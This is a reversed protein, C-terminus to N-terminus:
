EIDYKGRLARMAKSHQKNAHYLLYKVYKPHIEAVSMLSILPTEMAGYWTMKAAPEDLNKCGTRKIAVRRIFRKMFRVLKVKDALDEFTNLLTFQGRKPSNPQPQERGLLLYFSADSVEFPRTLCNEEYHKDTLSVKEGFRVSVKQTLVAENANKCISIGYEGNVAVFGKEACYISFDRECLRFNVTASENPKLYVKTFARLERRARMYNGFCNDIYLQVVEAAFVGGRNTVTVQVNFGNRLKEVCLNSYDFQAYSLGYGFPFLVQQGYTNYYRYGVFISERHEDYYRNNNFYKFCPTDSLQLPYTEALRGSPSVKGFILDCAAEMVAQGGLYMHLLCQVKNLWPMEFPSGGFAVFVINKNEAYLKDLLQQQNQPLELHTRDYGEGEYMDTLGGFFLVVKHKRVLNLAQKELKKDCKDTDARYGIAYEASIGNEALTELFNKCTANIHSSGAGQFRPKEALGGVVCIDAGANLPLLGSNKLLVASDAAVERCIRHHKTLDSQSTKEQQCKEVLQFVRRCAEDLISESLEGREVANVVTQRHYGYKDQPMELDMGAALAKPTDYSAGWDSMVLGDFQWEGRLIDTLLYKNQTASQGNIKNYSAMIAWPKAQKVVQEFAALYIERLAREDVLADITMRHSEQSNVAFHKLCAGVGKQQLARVYASGMSGALFPDESFYEFNRGCLPSRKINIGPGLVVSINEAIAEDAICQAIKEANHVNWSSAVACATPFCTAPKSDNIGECDDNQKRLGHPGDTMMISVDDIKQTHWAGDGSILLSKEELTLNKLCEGDM